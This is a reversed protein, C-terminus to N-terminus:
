EGKAITDALYDDLATAWTGPQGCEWVNKQLEDRVRLLASFMGPSNAILRANARAEEMQEKDDVDYGGITAYRSAGYRTRKKSETVVVLTNEREIISWPGPTHKTEM